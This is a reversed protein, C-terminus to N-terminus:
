VDSNKNRERPFHLKRVDAEAWVGPVTFSHLLDAGGLLYLPIDPDTDKQIVRLAYLTPTYGEQDAEWSSVQIWSGETALRCMALRHSAPALDTKKYADSVPSLIGRKVTVGRLAMTDKADEFSRLHANTIPSLSGCLVINVVNETSM